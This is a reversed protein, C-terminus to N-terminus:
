NELNPKSLYKEAVNYLLLLIFSSVWVYFGIELNNRTLRFPSLVTTAALIVTICSMIIKADTNNKSLLNLILSAIFTFNAIWAPILFIIGFWGILLIDYGYELTASGTGPSPLTVAPLFISFIYLSFIIGLIFIKIARM